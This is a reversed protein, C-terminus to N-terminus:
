LHHLFIRLFHVLFLMIGITFVVSVGIQLYRRQM